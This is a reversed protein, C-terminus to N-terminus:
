ARALDEHHAKVLQAMSTFKYDVSPEVSYKMNAGFGRQEYRRQIWCSRLQMESAPQHDHYVSDAVHLTDDKAIGMSSLTSFLYEFNNRSPKYSGVDEATVIADFDVALKANSARFSRNDVNSVVVLKFYKKLYQLTSASDPFAPWDGVSAGYAVAEAWSYRLGWEEALRKYVVRLLQDYPMAPTMKQQYSEHRAHAELIEDRALPEPARSALESLGSAIGSEWDILTGYCDFTLAKFDTLAV